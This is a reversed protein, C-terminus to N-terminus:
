RVKCIKVKKAIKTRLEELEEDSYTTEKLYKPDNTKTAIFKQLYYRKAGAITEGIKLIDDKSLLSRVVTTRFEHDIGSNKIIDISKKIDEVNIPKITVKEYKDLPAKVDMALYDVLKEDLAKQLVLPRTGNSDLKILFGMDKLKKMFSLLDKHLTPEGGTISVADLKGIRNELFKLIGKEEIVVTDNNLSILEPNHCYPCRFNCGVTFLIACTKGPYDILSFKQLGGFIM